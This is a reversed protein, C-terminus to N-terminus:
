KIGGENFARSVYLAVQASPEDLWILFHWICYHLLHIIVGARLSAVILNLAFWCSEWGFRLWTGLWDRRTCCVSDFPILNGVWMRAWAFRSGPAGCALLYIMWVEFVIVCALCWNVLCEFQAYM